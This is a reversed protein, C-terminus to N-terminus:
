GQTVEEQKRGRQNARLALGSKSGNKKNVKEGMRGWDTGFGHTRKSGGL